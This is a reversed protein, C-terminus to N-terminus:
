TTLLWYLIVACSGVIGLWMLGVLLAGFLFALGRGMGVAAIFLGLVILLIM